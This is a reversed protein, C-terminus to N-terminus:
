SAWATAGGVPWRQPAAPFPGSRAAAADLRNRIVARGTEMARKLAAEASAFPHDAGIAEDRFVVEAPRRRGHLRVVVVAARYGGGRGDLAGGYVRFEGHDQEEFQM